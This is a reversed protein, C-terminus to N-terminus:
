TESEAKKPVVFAIATAVKKPIEKIAEDLKACGNIATQRLTRTKSVIEIALDVTVGTDRVLNAVDVMLARGQDPDTEIRAPPAPPRAAEPQAVALPAAAVEAQPVPATSLSNMVSRLVREDPKYYRREMAQSVHGFVRQAAHLPTKGDSLARTIATVRLDYFRFKAMHPGIEKVAASRITTWAKNLHNMPKGLDQRNGAYPRGPLIFQEPNDGGMAQWREIIWKMSELAEPILPVLRERYANKAGSQDITLTANELDVDKRRLSKIEGFGCGTKVMLRMVHACLRCRPRSFAVDLLKIEDEPSLSRGSGAHSIPLPRYLKEISGNWCGAEDMVQHLMSLEMNIKANGAGKAKKNFGKPEPSNTKRWDQYARIHDITIAELPTDAFRLILVKMYATYDLITRKRIYKRHGELWKRVAVDFPTAPTIAESM